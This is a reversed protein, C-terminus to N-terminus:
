VGSDGGSGDFQYEFEWEPEDRTHHLWKNLHNIAEQLKGKEVRGKDSFALHQLFDRADAEEPPYRYEDRHQWVWRDFRATRYSTSYVTYQSYGEGETPSKGVNLLWSLLRARQDRYDVRQKESLVGDHTEPVVVISRNPDLNGPLPVDCRELMISLEETM